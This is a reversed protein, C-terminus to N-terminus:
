LTLLTIHIRKRFYEWVLIDIYLCRVRVNVLAIADETTHTIVVVMVFCNNVDILM